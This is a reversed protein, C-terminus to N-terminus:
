TEQTTWTPTAPFLFFSSISRLMNKLYCVRHETAETMDSEKPGGVRGCRGWGMSQLGGPEKSNGLCSCQRPNGNGEGPSQGSGPILGHDRANCASEKGSLWQPFSLEDQTLENVKMGPSVLYISPRSPVLRRALCFLKRALKPLRQM